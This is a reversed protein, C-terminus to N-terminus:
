SSTEVSVRKISPDHDAVAAQMMAGLEDPGMVCTECRENHGPRYAVRLVEGEVALFRVEGGDPRVIECFHDVVLQAGTSM